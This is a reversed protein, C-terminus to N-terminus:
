AKSEGQTGLPEAQGGPPRELCVSRDIELGNVGGSKTHLHLYLIVAARGIHQVPTGVPLLVLRYLHGDDVDVFRGCEFGRM